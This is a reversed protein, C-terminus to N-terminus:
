AALLEFRFSGREYEARLEVDGEAVAVQRLRSLPQVAGDLDQTMLRVRLEQRLEALEKEERYGM